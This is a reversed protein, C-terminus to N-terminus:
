RRRRGSAGVAVLAAGLLALMTTLPGFGPTQEQEEVYVTVRATSTEYGDTVTLTVTFLGAKDYEHNPLLETSTTGDGFDWHYELADGDRDESADASFQVSEGVTTIQAPGGNAVPPNNIFVFYDDDYEQFEGWSGLENQARYKFQYRFGRKGEFVVDERANSIRAWDTWAWLDDTRTASRMRLDGLSVNFGMPDEVDIDIPVKTDSLRGEPYTMTSVPGPIAVLM